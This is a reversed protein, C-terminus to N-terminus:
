DSAGAFYRPHARGRNQTVPSPVDWGMQKASELWEGIAVALNSIAEERTEGHSICGHLQPAAALFVQDEDSWVITVPYKATSM